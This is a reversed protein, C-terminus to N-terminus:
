TPLRVIQILNGCTDDFVATTVPGMKAPKQTFVVGLGVLREYEKQIDAVAFSTLPMGDKVIAKQYAQAAPHANPELLLEVGDPQEPSVITLWRFEGAPLDTKKIFGLVKTYFKLAKDQDDVFVSTVYIKM